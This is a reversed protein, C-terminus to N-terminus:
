FQEVAQIENVREQIRDRVYQASYKDTPISLTLASGGDTLVSVEMVDLFRGDQTLSSTQRQGTVRWGNAM